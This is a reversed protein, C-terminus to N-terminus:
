SSRLNNRVWVTKKNYCTSCKVWCSETRQRKFSHFYFYSSVIIDDDSCLLRLNLKKLFIFFLSFSLCLCFFFSGTCTLMSNLNQCPCTGSSPCPGLSCCQISRPSHSPAPTDQTPTPLCPVLSAAGAESKCITHCSIQLSEALALFPVPTDFSISLALSGCQLCSGMWVVLPCMGHQAPILAAKM